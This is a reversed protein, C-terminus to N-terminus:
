IITSMSKERKACYHIHESLQDRRRGWLVALARVEEVDDFERDDGRLWIGDGPLPAGRGVRVDNDVTEMESLMMNHLICCVTFVQEVKKMNKFRIGYDLCRWRKKLIGFVCEVDKRISEIKSSFYGKKSSVSEHKYPCILEPWRIYGGDCIFYIGTDERENGDEDYWRWRV